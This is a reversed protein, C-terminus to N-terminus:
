SRGIIKVTQGFTLQGRWTEFTKYKSLDPMYKSVCFFEKWGYHIIQAMNIKHKSINIFPDNNVNELITNTPLQHKSQSGCLVTPATVNIISFFVHSSYLVIDSGYTEQCNNGHKSYENM